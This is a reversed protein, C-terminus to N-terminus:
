CDSVSEYPINYSVVQAPGNNGSGKVLLTGNRCLLMNVCPDMCLGVDIWVYGLMSSTHWAVRSVSPHTSVEHCPQSVKIAYHSVTSQMRLLLTNPVDM